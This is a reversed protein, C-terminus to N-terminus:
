AIPGLRLGISRELEADRSARRDAGVLPAWVPGIMDCVVPLRSRLAESAGARALREALPKLSGRGPPDIKDGPVLSRAYLDGRILEADLEGELPGSEARGRWASISWGFEDAITEGPLTLMQRFSEPKDLQRVSWGDGDTTVSVSGGEATFSSKERRHIAEALSQTAVQDLKAGYMAVAIRICRRVLAIPLADLSRWEAGLRSEIFALPGLKPIENAALHTGALGDLLADEETLIKGTSAAHYITSANIKELIPIVQKRIRNRAFSEDENFSDQVYKLGHERCYEATEQRRAFSIPRIINERKVPIGTLGKMGAGRVLNFLMSEVSDDMTHGTAIREFGKSAIMQFFEYRLERGMEEVGIKRAAAVVPVNAQGVYFSIDLTECFTRCHEVDAEAHPRQGHHLHAAVIEHGTQSLLHLLCTSDAGGSFAVVVRDGSALLRNERIFSQFAEIM